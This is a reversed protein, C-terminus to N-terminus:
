NGAVPETTNTPTTEPETTPTTEAELLPKVERNYISEDLNDLLSVRTYEKLEEDYVFVKPLKSEELDILQADTPYAWYYFLQNDGIHNNKLYIYIGSMDETQKVYPQIFFLGTWAPDTEPDATYTNDEIFFDVYQPAGKCGIRIPNCDTGCDFTNGSIEIVTHKDETGSEVEYFNFCNHFAAEKVFTNNNFKSGDSVACNLEFFNYIEPSPGFYNNEIVLKTPKGWRNPQFARKTPKTNGSM